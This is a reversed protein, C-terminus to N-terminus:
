SASNVFLPAGISIIPWFAVRPNALNGLCWEFPRIRPVKVKGYFEPIRIRNVSNRGNLTAGFVRFRLIATKPLKPGIKLIAYSPWNKSNLGSVKQADTPRYPADKIEKKGSQSESDFHTHASFFAFFM